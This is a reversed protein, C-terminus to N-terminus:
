LSIGVLIVIILLISVLLHQCPHPFVPIRMCHQHYHFITHGSQFIMQYNKLLNFVYNGDSGVIRDRPTYGFSIFVYMSMFVPEYIEKVTNNMVSFLHFCEFPGDVSSHIFLIHNHGYLLINNSLKFFSTNIYTVVHVFRSFMSLSFLWDGFVVYHIYPEM